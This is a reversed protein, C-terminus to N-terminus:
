VISDKHTDDHNPTNKDFQVIDGMEM